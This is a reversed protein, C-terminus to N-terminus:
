VVRDRMSQMGVIGALEEDTFPEDLGKRAFDYHLAESLLSLQDM